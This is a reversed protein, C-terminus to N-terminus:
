CNQVISVAMGKPIIGFFIFLGRQPEKQTGQEDALTASPAM